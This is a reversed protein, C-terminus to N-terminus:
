SALKLSAHSKPLNGVSFIIDCTILKEPLAVTKSKASCRGLLIASM